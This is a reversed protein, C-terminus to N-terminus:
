NRMHFWSLKRVRIEFVAHLINTKPVHLNGFQVATLIGVLNVFRACYSRMRGM